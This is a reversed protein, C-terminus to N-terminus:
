VKNLKCKIIQLFFHSLPLTWMSGQTTCQCHAPPYKKEVVKQPSRCFLSGVSLFVCNIPSFFCMKWCRRERRRGEWPTSSLPQYSACLSTTCEARTSCWWRTPNSHTRVPARGCWSRVMRFCLLRQLWVRRTAAVCSISISSTKRSQARVKNSRSLLDDATKRDCAGAYWSKKHIHTDQFYFSQFSSHFLWSNNSLHIQACNFFLFIRFFIVHLLVNDTDVSDM